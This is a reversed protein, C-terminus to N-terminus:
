IILNGDHLGADGLAAGICIVVDHDLSAAIDTAIILNPHIRAIGYQRGALSRHNHIWRITTGRDPRFGLGRSVIAEGVHSIVPGIVRYPIAADGATNGAGHQGCTVIIGITDNLCRVRDRDNMLHNMINPYDREVLAGM